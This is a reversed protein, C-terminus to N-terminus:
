VPEREIRACACYRWVDQEPSGKATEVLPRLRADGELSHMACYDDFRELLLQDEAANWPGAKFGSSNTRHENWSHIYKGGEEPAGATPDRWTKVGRMLPASVVSLESPVPPAPDERRRKM